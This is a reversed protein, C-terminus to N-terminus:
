HLIDKLEQLKEAFFQFADDYVYNERPDVGGHVLEDIPSESGGKHLFALYDATDGQLIKKAFCLAVSMGLTYKYVYFNYYFHPIHYCGYRQLDDVIVGDGFYNKNLDYWLSTLANSSIAEGKEIMEHLRCEFQAYMPQRYLTGVLQDLLNSLLYAKYQPDDSTKLLYENLLIENVTSAVEAVFIKYDCLMPRNARRSFYSHMSHGLEHALTSLSEYTGNFNTLVFPKSNYSGGSYAGGIKGECPMFDIWREDKAKQLLSVYEEGLPALAKKLIDFSEDITYSIDIDSVMPLFIDYPHQEELKLVHKRYRFYDHLGERYKVNAMDLVKYFLQEDAGDGFLSAQLASDFNRMRAEFVQGKAHGSLLNMFTNQYRKYEGFFNEFAEKRANADCNHLFSHYTSDSLFQPKGDVMVDPYQLRFAEFTDSSIRELESVKAMIAEKEEDLRHPITRFLEQMPYRFDRCDEEKLWEEIIEKHEIIELPVFSLAIVSQQYLAFSKSLNEQQQINDPEVDTAMHAYSTLNNIYREFTEEDEMFGIYSQLNDSIHGKRASLDTLLAQAAEYQKDFAAQNEFLSSLDWTLQTEIENHKM